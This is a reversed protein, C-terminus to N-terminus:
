YMKRGKKGKNQKTKNRACWDNAMLSLVKTEQETDLIKSTILSEKKPNM